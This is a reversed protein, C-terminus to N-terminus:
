LEELFVTWAQASLTLLKVCETGISTSMLDSMEDLQGASLM